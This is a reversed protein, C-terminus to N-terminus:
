IREPVLSVRISSVWKEFRCTQRAGINRENVIVVELM